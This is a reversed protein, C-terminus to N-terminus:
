RLTLYKWRSNRRTKTCGSWPMPTIGTGNELDTLNRFTSIKSSRANQLRWRYRQRNSALNSRMRRDASSYTVLVDKWTPKRPTCLDRHFYILSVAMIFISFGVQDAQIAEESEHEVPQELQAELRTINEKLFQIRARRDRDGKKLSEMDEHLSEAKEGQLLGKSFIWRGSIGFVYLSIV